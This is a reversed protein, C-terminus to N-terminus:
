SFEEEEQRSISVDIRDRAVCVNNKIVYCEVFHAGNFSSSEKRRANGTDSWIQGRICDRRMAEDGVNRAKWKIQYPEPVDNQTVYFQLQKNIALPFGLRQLERLLRTQFGRQQVECEISLSYRIDIPYKDCIYEETDKYSQLSSAFSKEGMQIASPFPRGFIQKWTTYVSQKDINDIALLCKKYAKKAKSVFNGKRHVQQNSGPALWYSQAKDQESLYKFLDRLMYHYSGVEVSKYQTNQQIFNYCLTDILLGGMPVGQANKWARVMKCLKKLNGNSEGNVKNIEDREQRPKTIKWSGGSSSDPYKYSDDSQPFAPLVEIVYDSFTVVVVQGDGRIDTTSYTNKIAERIEQLLASQGNGEHNNFRKYVSDPLEFLMDLDSIGNIATGRGYSGVQLSNYTESDNGWYKRNLIKTITRYKTSIDSANKVSLNSLFKNFTTSVDM